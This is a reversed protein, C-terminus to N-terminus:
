PMIELNKPTKKSAVMLYVAPVIFLTLFTSFVMGGVVAVGMPVRSGSGAGLALAIPLIGLITSLATMLIPRFRSVSADIVAELVPLGQARRQNTFEVILIGNKTVLGILMILGIQSFINLTQRFYWLSFLAGVLALPVTLMITFPDRFSEFQAALTLYIFVLSLLFVFMLSSASEVFDRSAGDLATRYTEDLVRKAIADMAKIGDGISKGRALQASVTASLFRDFHFLQPPSSEETITILNDLQVLKGDRNRVFLSKLDLPENRDEPLVQGIIQYQRGNMIYYGIRQGSYALALTQAVDAMTVGLNRAKERDLRVRLEPKNFKLNVDVFSFTPDKRAEELFKPLVAQLKELNSALIVYQVPLGGRRGSGLTQEQSVVTRAASLKSVEAMLDDAIEQQSRQRENPEKLILRIFGTNASGASGFGPATISIMAETEPVRQQVFDGLDRMFADTYEYGAGEPTTATLRLQSRDEYPALERPLITWFLWILALCVAFILPVWKRRALFWTLKKRYGEILATFFPETAYYFRSHRRSRLIRTAAMPTLTLAVFSSIIVATSIVVGFERFLKGVLGQMFLLPLFVAALVVTTSIVAFYVEKSGELGAKIPDYGKEIKTYINELMVIADDVVLGIALVIGLLTLVNISFGALYMVFFTGILSIPIALAPILTTRWDRLFLFIILVVLVFATFITERVEAISQRIYKTVDFGIGLELDAPIEKKIQEIRRYFEDVIKIYNAGPQPILVLGIMPVGDRRMITRYNEAGLEAFGIDRLRVIRGQSERIILNNFDEVTLLRGMTRVTLETADGEIRGTPLEVNERSLATQVDLPTLNYAALKRPDLWLRMAYTKAGWLQVESVGPITRVRERLVNTAWDTVELLGRTESKINLFVIPVADADAKIVQPADADPPLQRQARSVRDRVDNAADELKIGLNFEVTINSRGERSVSTISRVGAIGSLSEELPETIQSEIVDANAGIYNASVTVVAPDVNPFERVGLFSFGIIGLIVIFLSMVMALVPRRISVSSLSM